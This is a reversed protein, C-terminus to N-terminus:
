FKFKISGSPKITPEASSSKGARMEEEKAFVGTLNHEQKFHESLLAKAYNEINKKTIDEPHQKQLKAMQPHQAAPQSSSIKVSSEENFPDLSYRSSDCIHSWESNTDFKSTDYGKIPHKAHPWKEFSSCAYENGDQEGWDIICLRETQLFPDFLLGRIQSVGTEIRSPKKDRCPIGIKGFYNVASADATDPCALDPRYLSYTTQNIYKVWDENSFGTSHDTHLLSARRSARSYLWMNNTATDVTGFDVGSNCRWNKERSKRYFDEKTPICFGAQWSKFLDPESLNHPNFWEDFMFRWAFQPKKYHRSKSFNRFVIGTTEPKLNLVQAIIKQPDRKLEDITDGVFSVTRLNPSNSTQKPSRGQCAVFAPCTRCNEYASVQKFRSKTAELENDISDNGWRTELTDLNLFATAQNEGRIEPPCIKMFDVQSWKHLRVKSQDKIADDMLEQIPGDNSKRSSLSITIPDFNHGDQTPDATLAVESLIERPTIDVEDRICLNSRQSNASEITAAVVIVEADGKKTYSNEPLGVMSYEYVSKTQFYNTLEPINLFKRLYKLCKKSQEKLSSIQLCSRRFHVMALWHIIASNLTKMSNRSAAVVHRKPGVNTLMTHYVSWIFELPNSTSDEDVTANPLDIKLFYKVFEYLEEKSTCPEFLIAMREQTTLEM